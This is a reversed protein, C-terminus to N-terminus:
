GQVFPFSPNGSAVGVGGIASPLPSELTPVFTQQRSGLKYTLRFLLLSAGVAFVTVLAAYIILPINSKKGPFVTRLINIVTENWALSAILVLLSIFLAGLDLLFPRSVSQKDMKEQTVRARQAGNAVSANFCFDQTIM